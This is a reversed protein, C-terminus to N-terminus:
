YKPFTRVTSKWLINFCNSLLVVLGTVVYRLKVPYCMHINNRNPLNYNHVDEAPVYFHFYKKVFLVSVYIHLSSFSDLTGSSFSDERRIVSFRTSSRRRKRPQYCHFQMFLPRTHFTLQCWSNVLKNFKLLLLTIILTVFM